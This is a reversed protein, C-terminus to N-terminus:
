HIAGPSPRRTNLSGIGMRRPRNRPCDCRARAYSFLSTSFGRGQEVFAYPLLLRERGKEAVANEDYAHDYHSLTAHQSLQEGMAAEETEKRQMLNSKLAVLRPRLAKLSNQIGFLDRQAQRREEPGKGSYEILVREQRELGELALPLALNRM